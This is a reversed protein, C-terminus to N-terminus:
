DKRYFYVIEALLAWAAMGTLVDGEARSRNGEPGHVARLPVPRVPGELVGNPGPLARAM